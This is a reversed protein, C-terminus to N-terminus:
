KKIIKNGLSDWHKRCFRDLKKEFETTDLVENTYIRKLNKKLKINPVFMMLGGVLERIKQNDPEPLKHNGSDAGINVQIPNCLKVLELLEETDFDLVPEITLYKPLDISFMGKARIEPSPSKGMINKYIRNTEITTCVVSKEPLEFDKLRVPNKTQFLYQNDFMKCYDLTNQIWEDPIGTSFLDNSSGVFIFNGEGLDTKLEKDDFRVDNLHGWRKMYCYSCDHYCKGKVTNWTHTVFEYMNGKSSNIGM